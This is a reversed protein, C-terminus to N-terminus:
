YIVRKLIGNIYAICVGFNTLPVGAQEFEHQRNIMAKRSLMCGGCHVALKYDSLNNKINQGSVNEIVLNKETYKRILNPIKVRAIDDDMAHHSCSELILVRDGDSLSDLAEAGKIFLEIDGKIKAMLVSFSTLRINDPIAENVQKFIQSDTIVLSPPNKLNELVAKLNQPIVSIVTCKNDLLDRITQVQPMILRGKPAQIDQPMVLLVTDGDNVLDATLPPDAERKKLLAILTEKIKEVDSENHLDACVFIMNGFDATLKTGNKENAVIMFPIKKDSVLKIYNDTTIKNHNEGNVVIVAADCVDLQQLSKKVRIEGLESTDDLGATDIFVVPGIPLLEMPKFVPDTTTGAVPSTLAIEQGTVANIFTSKGANTDGFVGIHIRLAKPTQNLESIM